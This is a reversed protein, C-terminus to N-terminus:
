YYEAYNWKLISCYLMELLRYKQNQTDRLIAKNTKGSGYNAGKM